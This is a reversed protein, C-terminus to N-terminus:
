KSKNCKHSDAIISEPVGVEKAFLKLAKSFESVSKMSTINVYGMNSVFIQMCPYGRSSAAKKTVFFNDTFFFSKIRRYRLMKDNTGFNRSLNFNIDQRKLQTTTNITRKSTDSDIIWIKQLLEDDVGKPKEAHPASAFSDM